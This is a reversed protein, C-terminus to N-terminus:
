TKDEETFFDIVMLGITNSCKPFDLIKPGSRKICYNKGYREKLKDIFAIRNYGEVDLSYEIHVRTIKQELVVQM